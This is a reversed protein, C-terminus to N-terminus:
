VAKKVRSPRGRSGIASVQDFPRHCTPCANHILQCREGERKSCNCSKCLTQFGPPFDNRILWAYIERGRHGIEERHRKGDGNVHDITLADATGCCACTTGYHAFVRQRILLRRRRAGKPESRVSSTFRDAGSLGGADYYREVHPDQSTIGSASVCQHGPEAGCRRCTRSEQERVWPDRAPKCRAPRHERTKRTVGCTGCYQQNRGTPTYPTGCDECVKERSTRPTM